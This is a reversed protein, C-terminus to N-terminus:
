VFVLGDSSVLLDAALSQRRSNSAHVGDENAENGPDIYTKVIFMLM